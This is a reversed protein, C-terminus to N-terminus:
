KCEGRLSAADSCDRTSPILPPKLPRQEPKEPKKLDVPKKCQDMLDLDPDVLHLECELRRVGEQAEPSLVPQREQRPPIYPHHVEEDKRPRGEQAYSYSAILLSMVALCTVFSSTASFRRWFM